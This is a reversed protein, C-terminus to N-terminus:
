LNTKFVDINQVTGSKYKVQVKHTTQQASLQQGASPDPHLRREDVDLLQTCPSASTRETAM